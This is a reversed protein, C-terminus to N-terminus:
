NAPLYFNFMIKYVTNGNIFISHLESLKNKQKNEELCDGNLFFHYNKEIDRATFIIENLKDKVLIKCYYKSYSEKDELPFTEVKMNFGLSKFWPNLMTLHDISLNGLNAQSLDGSLTELGEMLTIILIEFVTQVDTNSDEAVIQCSCEPMPEKTFIERAIEEPSQGKLKNIDLENPNMTTM